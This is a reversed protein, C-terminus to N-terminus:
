TPKELFQSIRARLDAVREFDQDTLNTIGVDNLRHRCEKLLARATDRERTRTLLLNEAIAQGVTKESM